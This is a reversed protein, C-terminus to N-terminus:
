PMELQKAAIYDELVRNAREIVEIRNQTDEPVNQLKVINTRFKSMSQELAWDPDRLLPGLRPRKPPSPLTEDLQPPHLITDVEVQEDDIHPFLDDMHMQSASQQTEDPDHDANSLPVTRQPSARPTSAESQFLQAPSSTRAVPTPSSQTRYELHPVRSLGEEDDSDGGLFASALRKRPTCSMPPLSDVIELDSDDDDAYNRPTTAGEDKVERPEPPPSIDRDQEEPMGGGDIEDQDDFKVTLEAPLEGISKSMLYREIKQPDKRWIDKLFERLRDSCDLFLQLTRFFNDDNKIEDLDDRATNSIMITFKGTEADHQHMCYQDIGPVSVKGEPTAIELVEHVAEVMKVETQLLKNACILPDRHEQSYIFRVIERRHRKIDRTQASNVEPHGTYWCSKVLVDSLMYIRRDQDLFHHNLFEILYSRLPRATDSLKLLKIRDDNVLARAADSDDPVLLGGSNICNVIRGQSPSRLVFIPLELVEQLWPKSSHPDDRQFRSLDDLVNNLIEEYVPTLDRFIGDVLLLAKLFTAAHQISFNEVGLKRRFLSEHESYCAHLLTMGFKDLPYSLSTSWFIDRSDLRHWSQDHPLYLLQKTMFSERLFPAQEVTCEADVKRYLVKIAALDTMGNSSAAELVKLCHELNASFSVGFKVLIKKYQKAQETAIQIFPLDKEIALARTRFFTDELPRVFGDMCPVQLRKMASIFAESAFHKPLKSPDGETVQVLLALLTLGNGQRNIAADLEPSLRSESVRPFLALGHQLLFQILKSKRLIPHLFKILGGSDIRHLLDNSDHYLTRLPVRANEEDLLVLSSFDKIDHEEAYAIFFQLHRKIVSVDRQFAPLTHQDLVFRSISPIDARKILLKVCLFDEVDSSGCVTRSVFRLAPDLAEFQGQLEDQHTALFVSSSTPRALVVESAIRDSGQIQYSLVPVCRLEQFRALQKATWGPITKLARYFATFYRSHILLQLRDLNM